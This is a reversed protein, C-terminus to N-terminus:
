HQKLAAKTSCTIVRFLKIKFVKHKRITNVSTEEYTIDNIFHSPLDEKQCQQKAALSNFDTINTHVNSYLYVHASSNKPEMQM